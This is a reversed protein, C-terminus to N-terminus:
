PWSYGPFYDRITKDKPIQMNWLMREFAQVMPEPGSVYYLPKRFDYSAGRIFNEDIREPEISYRVRFTKTKRAIADLENRFVIDHTRNAYLLLINIPENRRDLDLIISRYPTIGIGGAIFVFDKTADTIVFDGEPSDAEIIDGIQMARLTTKFTSSQASFRTTLMIHEEHPASAITFWREVGRSDPNQHPLTYHLFQGAQWRIPEASTFFFSVVNETEERKRILTLQM